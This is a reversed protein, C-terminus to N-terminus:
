DIIVEQYKEPISGSSDTQEMAAKLDTEAL